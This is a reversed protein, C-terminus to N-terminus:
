CHAEVLRGPSSIHKYFSKKNGKTTNLVTLALHVDGEARTKSLILKRRLLQHKPNLLVISIVCQHEVSCVGEDDGQDSDHVRSFEQGGQGSSHQGKLLNVGMEATLVCSHQIGLFLSLAEM